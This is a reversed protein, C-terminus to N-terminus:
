CELSLTHGPPFPLVTYETPEIERHLLRGTALTKSSIIEEVNKQSKGDTKVRQFVCSNDNWRICEKSFLRSLQCLLNKTTRVAVIFVDLPILMVVM